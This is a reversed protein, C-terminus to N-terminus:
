GDSASRLAFHEPVGLCSSQPRTPARLVALTAGRLSVAKVPLFAASLFRPTAASGPHSQRQVRSARRPPKRDGSSSWVASRVGWPAM